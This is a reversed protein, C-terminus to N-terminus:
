QGCVQGDTKVTGTLDFGTVVGATDNVDIRLVNEGLLFIGDEILAGIQLSGPQGEIFSGIDGTLAQGNLQISANDDALLALEMLAYTTTEDLCFRYEFSIQGVGAVSQGKEANVSVWASQPLPLPWAVHPTIVLRAPGILGPTAIRWDDDAAGPNLRDNQTQDFGTNLNILQGPVLDECTDPLGNRNYDSELGRRIEEDDAIGNENCDTSVGVTHILLEDFYAAKLAFSELSKIEGLPTEALIQLRNAAVTSGDPLTFLEEEPWNLYYCATFVGGLKVKGKGCESFWARAKISGTHRKSERILRDDRYFRLIQTPSELASYDVAIQLTDGQDTARLRGLAREHGAVVGTTELEIFAGRSQTEQPEALSLHIGIADDLPTLKIGNLGSSGINEILIGSDTDQIAAEGLASIAIDDVPFFKYPLKFCYLISCCKRFEADHTSIRICIEKGPTAGPGSVGLTVSHTGGYPIPAIPLFNQSLTIGPTVPVTLIYSVSTSALNQLVFSFAYGSPTLAVRKRLLQACDCDPVQLEIDALCCLSLDENHMSFSISQLSGASAGSIRIQLNGSVQGPLLNGLTLYNPTATAGPLQTVFLHQATFSSLNKVRFNWIFDGSGDVTCRVSEDTIELCANCNNYVEVDGIRWKDHTTTEEDLDVLYSNAVSGGTEPLIQLGYIWDPTKQLYDGTAVVFGPGDGGCSYAVGGSANEAGPYNGIMFQNGTLAWNMHGGSYELVRSKHADITKDAAMSREALLMRGDAAFTIDAVPMTWGSPRPLIPAIEALQSNAIFTGNANLGISYISNPNGTNRGDNSWISFYVRNNYVNIGWPRDGLPVFDDVSLSPDYLPGPDYTQTTVGTMSLTYILGDHFNTVYFQRHVPDYAINGLGSGNNPLNSFVTVVGTTGDIKYVAGNATGGYNSTATVYINPNPADDLALGFIQSEFAFQWNPYHFGIGSWNTNYTAHLSPDRIDLIGLPFGGPQTKCTAVAEGPSLPLQSLAPHGLGVSIIMLTVIIKSLSNMRLLHM